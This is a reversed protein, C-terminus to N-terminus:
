EDVGENVGDEFGMEYIKDFVERLKAAWTDALDETRAVDLEVATAYRFDSRLEDVIANVVEDYDNM